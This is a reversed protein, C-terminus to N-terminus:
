FGWVLAVTDDGGTIAKKGDNSLVLGGVIAEHHGTRKAVQIGTRIDWRRISKDIGASTLEYSGAPLVMATVADDHSLTNRLRYSQTDYLYIRGDISGAALIPMVTSWALTEISDGTRAGLSALISGNSLNVLKTLGDTGGVAVVTSAPNIALSTLPGAEFRADVMLLSFHSRVREQSEGHSQAM